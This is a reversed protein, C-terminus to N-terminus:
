SSVLHTHVTRPREGFLLAIYPAIRYYHLISLLHVKHIFEYNRRPGIICPQIKTNAGYRPGMLNAVPKLVKGGLMSAACRLLNANIDM